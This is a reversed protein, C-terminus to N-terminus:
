PSTALVSAMSTSSGSFRWPPRTTATSAYHLIVWVGERARLRCEDGLRTRGLEVESHHSEGVVLYWLTAIAQKRAFGSVPGALGALLVGVAPVAVGFLNTSSKLHGDLSYGHLESVDEAGFLRGFVNLCTLAPSRVIVAFALGSM